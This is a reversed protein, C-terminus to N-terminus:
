APMPETKRSPGAPATATTEANKSTFKHCRDVAGNFTVNLVAIDISVNEDAATANSSMYLIEDDTATTTEAPM